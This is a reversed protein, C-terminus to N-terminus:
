PLPGYWRAIVEDVKRIVEASAGDKFVSVVRCINLRPGGCGDTRDDQQHRLYLARYAPRFTEDGLALYLDLFFRQGLSYYCIRPTTQGPIFTRDPNAKELESINDFFPCPSKIPELPRGIREHESIIRLFEASGETIWNQYQYGEGDNRWYWHAAEHAIVSAHWDPGDVSDAEAPILLHTFNNNANNVQPHDYYLLALYDIPFPVGMFREMSRVAHELHDMRPTVRDETRIVALLTEGTHPLEILREEIYVGTEALLVQASGPASSYTRGGLVAVIKTEEDTIGDKIRPHSMLESFDDADRASINNLSRLALTDRIEVSDLFPMGIIAQADTRSRNAISILYGVVSLEEDSFGDKFWPKTSLASLGYRDIRYPGALDRLTQEEGKTVGDALWSYGLLTKVKAPDGRLILRLYYAANREEKTVDDALWPFRLLTKAVAPDERLILRLHQIAWSEDNTVGDALWPFGLLTRAVAPDEQLIERLYRIARQEDETVGDAMWPFDLRIESTPTATPTPTPTPTATPSPTSTPTATPCALTDSSVILSALDSWTPEAYQGGNGSVVFLHLAGPELRSVTFSTQGTNKLDVFYFAESWDRGAGTVARYNPASVWGVRYYAASTVANWSVVAEGANPGNVAQVNTPQLSSGQALVANDTEVVIVLALVAVALAATVTLLVRKMMMM